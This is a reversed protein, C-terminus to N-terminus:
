GSNKGMHIQKTLNILIWHIKEGRTWREGIQNLNTVLFNFLIAVMQLCLWGLLSPVRPYTIEARCLRDSVKQELIFGELM